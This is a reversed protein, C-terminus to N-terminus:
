QSGAITVVLSKHLMLSEEVYAKFPLLADPRRSNRQMMLLQPITEREFDHPTREWVERMAYDLIDSMHQPLTYM